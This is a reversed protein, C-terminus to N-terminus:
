LIRIIRSASKRDISIKSMIRILDFTQLLRIFENMVPLSMDHTVNTNYKKM